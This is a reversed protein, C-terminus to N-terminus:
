PRGFAFLDPRYISSIRVFAGTFPAEIMMGSGLYLAVHHVTMINSPDYAFFVLDGPRADAASVPTSLEYQAVSWHPLTVGGAAWAAMTLGSCDWTDPGAGGWQYPKGLQAMAFAIAARAGASTAHSGYAHGGFSHSRGGSGARARALARAQAEAAARREAAARALGVRRAQALAASHSRATALAQSLSAVQANIAAVQTRQQQAKAQVAQKAAKAADAAQSVGALAVAAQQDLVGAVVRAADMRDLIAAQRNALVQLTSALDVIGTPSDSTVLAGVGLSLGGQEYAQSALRGVDRQALDLKARAGDAARQAAAARQQAQGLRYLAGNYAENAADVAEGLAQLKAQATALQAQMVGVRRAVSAAHARAAAVQHASPTPSDALAGSAPVLMAALAAVAAV